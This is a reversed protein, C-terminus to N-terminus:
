TLSPIIIFGNDFKASCKANLLRAGSKKLPQYFNNLTVTKPTSYLKGLITM